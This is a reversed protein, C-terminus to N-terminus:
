PHYNMKDGRELSLISMGPLPVKKQITFGQHQADIKGRAQNRDQHGGKNGRAFRDSRGCEAKM